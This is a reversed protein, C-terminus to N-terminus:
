TITAIVAAQLCVDHTALGAARFRRDGFLEVFQGIIHRLIHVLQQFMETFSPPSMFNGSSITTAVWLKITNM